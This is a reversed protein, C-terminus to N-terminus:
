KLRRREGCINCTGIVKGMIEYEDFTGKGCSDCKVRFSSPFTDENDTVLEEDQSKQEYKEYQRLQQQLSRVLRELERVQGRLHEVESKTKRPTKSM